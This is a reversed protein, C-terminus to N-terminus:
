GSSGTTPTPDNSALLPTMVRESLVDLMGTQEHARLLEEVESRMAPDPCASVLFTARASPERNLADHLLTELMAWRGADLPAQDVTLGKSEPSSRNM